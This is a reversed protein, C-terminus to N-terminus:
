YMSRGDTNPSVKIARECSSIRIFPFALSDRIRRIRRPVSRDLSSARHGAVVLHSIQPQPLLTLTFKAGFQMKEGGVEDLERRVGSQPADTTGPCIRIACYAYSERKVRSISNEEM